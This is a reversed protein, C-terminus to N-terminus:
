GFAGMSKEMTSNSQQFTLNNVDEQQEDESSLDGKLKKLDKGKNQAHFMPVIRTKYTKVKPKILHSRPHVDLTKKLKIDIDENLNELKTMEKRDEIEAEKQELENEIEEQSLAAIRAM